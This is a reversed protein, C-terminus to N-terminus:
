GPALEKSEFLPLQRPQNAQTRTVEQLQALKNLEKALALIDLQQLIKGTIPRKADWFIFAQFFQRAADANLLNTLLEAEEESQCPLFYCTDDLMIPKDNQPGVATFWIQKSM